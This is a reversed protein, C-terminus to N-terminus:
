EAKEVGVGIHVKALLISLCSCHTCVARSIELDSLLRRKHFIILRCEFESRQLLICLPLDETVSSLM